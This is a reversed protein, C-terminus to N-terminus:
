IWEFFSQAPLDILCFRYIKRIKTHVFDPPIFLVVVGIEPQGFKANESAVRLDCCMALECGGGLAFGNIAAIVPKSISYIQDSAKRSIDIFGRIDNSNLPQMTAIDAGAVFAKEGSGTLIVVAVESDEEIEKFLGYLEAYVSHNLANLAEPRNVTVVGIGEEKHYLLYQYAM